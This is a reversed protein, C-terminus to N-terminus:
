GLTVGERPILLYKTRDVLVGGWISVPLSSDIWATALTSLRKQPGFGKQPEFLELHVVFLNIGTSWEENGAEFTVDNRALDLAFTNLGLRHVGIVLGTVRNTELCDVSFRIHHHFPEPPEQLPLTIWLDPHDVGKNDFWESNAPTLQVILQNSKRNVPIDVQDQTWGAMRLEM